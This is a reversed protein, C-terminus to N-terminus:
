GLFPYPLNLLFGEFPKLMGGALPQQFTVYCLAKGPPEEARYFILGVYPHAAINRIQAAPPLSSAGDATIGRPTKKNQLDKYYLSKSAM